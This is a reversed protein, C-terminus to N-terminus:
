QNNNHNRQNRRKKSQRRRRSGGVGAVTVDNLITIKKLDGEPINLVQLAPVLAGAGIAAGENGVPGFQVNYTAPDAGAGANVAVVKGIMKSGDALAALFEATGGAGQMRAAVPIAPAVVTNSTYMVLNNAVFPM